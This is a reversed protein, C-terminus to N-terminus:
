RLLDKGKDLIFVGYGATGVLPNVYNIKLDKDEASASQVLAAFATVLMAAKIFFNNM